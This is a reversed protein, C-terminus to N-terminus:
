TQGAARTGGAPCGGARGGPAPGPCRGRGVPTGAGHRGWQWGVSFPRRGNPLPVARRGCRLGGRGTQGSNWGQATHAKPRLSHERVDTILSYDRPRFCGGGHWRHSLSPLLLGQMPLCIGRNGLPSPCMLHSMSGSELASYSGPPDLNASRPKPLILPPQELRPSTPPGDAKQLLEPLFLQRM